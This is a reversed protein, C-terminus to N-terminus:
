LKKLDENRITVVAIEGKLFFFSGYVRMVIKDPFYMDVKRDYAIDVNDDFEVGLPLGKIHEEIHVPTFNFANLSASVTSLPDSLDSPKSLSFSIGYCKDCAPKNFDCSTLIKGEDSFYESLLFMKDFADYGGNFRDGNPVTGSILQREFKGHRVTIRFVLSDREGSRSKMEMMQMFQIDVRSLSSDIQAARAKCKEFVERASYASSVHNSNFALVVAAAFFFNM